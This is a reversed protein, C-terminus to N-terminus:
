STGARSEGRASQHTGQRTPTGFSRKIMFGLAEEIRGWGEASHLDIGFFSRATKARLILFIVGALLVGSVAPVDVGSPQRLNRVFDLSAQEREDALQDTLESREMLEQRRIEQVEPQSRLAEIQGVLMRYLREGADLDDPIDTDLGGCADLRGWYDHQSMFAHVLEPLGGFYRYILSKSVGAEKAIANIGVGEFGRSVLINELADLIKQETILRRKQKM